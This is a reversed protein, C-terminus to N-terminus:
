LHAFGGLSASEELDCFDCTVSGPLFPRRLTFSLVAFTLGCNVGPSQSGVQIEFGSSSWNYLRSHHQTGECPSRWETSGASTRSPCSTSAVPISLPVGQTQLESLHLSSHLPSNAQHHHHLLKHVSSIHVSGTWSSILFRKWGGLQSSRGSGLARGM